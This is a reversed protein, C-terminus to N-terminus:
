SALVPFEILNSVKQALLNTSATETSSLAEMRAEGVTGFWDVLAERVAGSVTSGVHKSYKQFKHYVEADVLIPIRGKILKRLNVGKRLATM